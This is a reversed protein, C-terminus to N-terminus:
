QVTINVTSSTATGPGLNVVRVRYIGTEPVVFTVMGNPGISTDSVFAFQGADGQFVYLDVDAGVQNMRQNPFSVVKTVAVLLAERRSTTAMNTSSREPEIPDAHLERIVAAM